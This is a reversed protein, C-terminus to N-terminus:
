RVRYRLTIRPPNMAPKPPANRVSACTDRNSSFRVAPIPKMPSAAMIKPRHIGRPTSPAPSTKPNAASELLLQADQPSRDWRLEQRHRRVDHRDNNHGADDSSCSRRSSVPLRVDLISLAAGYGRKSGTLPGCRDRTGGEVAGLGIDEQDLTGLRPSPGDAAAFAHAHEAKAVSSAFRRCRWNM